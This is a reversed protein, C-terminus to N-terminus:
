TRSERRRVCSKRFTEHLLNEVQEHRDTVPLGPLNFVQGVDSENSEGKM